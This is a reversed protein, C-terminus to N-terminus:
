AHLRDESVRSLTLFRVEATMSSEWEQMLLFTGEFGPIVPLDKKDGYIGSVFYGDSPNVTSYLMRLLIQNPELKPIPLDQIQLRTGYRKLVAARM